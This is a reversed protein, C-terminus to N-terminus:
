DRARALRVVALTRGPRSHLEISGGLRDLTRRVLALGMGLGRPKTTWFPKFVSALREPAIGAGSDCVELEVWSGAAQARVVVRDGAATAELANALLSNVVQAIAVEEGRVPPLKDGVQTELTKGQAAFVPAFREGVGALTAALDTSGRVEEPHRVYSLLTRVLHEIRDVNAVMERAGDPTAEGLEIQLEASSRISALPNRISHAVSAAIEGTRAMAEADILRERQRHMLASAKRVLGLTSLYLLLGSVLAGIWVVLTTHRLTENLATPVRYLEVVGIPAAAPSLTDYVPLYNEVFHTGPRALAVHEPKADGAAGLPGREVVTEGRLAEELEDNRPFRKGTMAADSSWLVTGNRAYVNARLVDPMSAVHGFFEEFAARQGSADGEGFYRTVTRTVVVSQVFQRSLEADHRLLQREVYEALVLALAVSVLAAAALSVRSFWRLLDFEPSREELPTSDPM